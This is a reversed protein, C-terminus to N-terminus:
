KTEWKLKKTPSEPSPIEKGKWFLEEYDDAGLKERIRCHRAWFAQRTKKTNQSFINKVHEQFELHLEKYRAQKVLSENQLVVLVVCFTEEQTWTRPREVKELLAVLKTVRGRLEDSLKGVLTCPEAEANTSSFKRKREPLPKETQPLAYQTMGFSMPPSCRSLPLQNQLGALALATQNELTKTYQSDKLKDSGSLCTPFVKADALSSGMLGAGGSVGQAVCMNLLQLYQSTFNNGGQLALSCLQPLVTDDGLTLSPYSHSSGCGVSGSLLSQSLVDMAVVDRSM